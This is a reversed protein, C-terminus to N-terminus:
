WGALIWALDGGNVEGDDNFDGGMSGDTGWLSMFVGLDTGDVFGDGDLDGIVAACSDPVGDLNEDAVLGSAIQWVDLTGSADCDDLPFGAIRGTDAGDVDSRPVGVYLRDGDFAAALGFFDGTGAPPAVLRTGSTWEGDVRERIWAAGTEVLGGTNAAYAGVMLRDGDPDLRCPFGFGRVGTSDDPGFVTELWPMGEILRYLHVAGVDTGFADEFPSGVALRDAELDLCEGFIQYQDPEAPVLMGDLVWQGNERHHIAVGGHRFGAPGIAGPTGVALIGNEVDISRGFYAAPQGISLRQVLRYGDGDDEFCWVGGATDADISELFAGVLIEDVTDGFCVSSGFLAGTDDFIGPRLKQSWTWVDDVLRFVHVSGSRNGADDDLPTGVILRDDRLVVPMGFHDGPIGDPAELTQHLTWSVGDRRFLHVRGPALIGADHDAGVAMWDGEIAIRNGFTAGVAADPSAIVETAVITQGTAVAAPALIGALLVPLLRVIPPHPTRTSMAASGHLPTVNGSVPGAM